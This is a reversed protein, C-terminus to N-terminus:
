LAPVRPPPLAVARRQSTVPLGRGRSGGGVRAPLSLLAATTESENGGKKEKNDDGRRGKRGRRRRKEGKVGEEEGKGEKGKGRETRGQGEMREEGNM